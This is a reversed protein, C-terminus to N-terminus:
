LLSESDFEAMKLHHLPRLAELVQATLHNM